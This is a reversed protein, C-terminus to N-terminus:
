RRYSARMAKLRALEKPNREIKEWGKNMGNYWADAYVEALIQKRYNLRWNDYSGGTYEGSKLLDVFKRYLLEAKGGLAYDFSQSVDGSVGQLYQDFDDDEYERGMNVFMDGADSGGTSTDKHIAEVLMDWVKQIDPLPSKRTLGPTVKRPGGMVQVKYKEFSGYGFNTSRDSSLMKKLMDESITDEGRLFKGAEGGRIGQSSLFMAFDKTDMRFKLKGETTLFTDLSAEFLRAVRAPDPKLVLTPM